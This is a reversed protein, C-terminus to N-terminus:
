SPKTRRRPGTDRKSSAIKPLESRLLQLYFRGNADFILIGKPNPGFAEVSVPTWTGVLDKASQAVADGAPIALGLCLLSVTLVTSFRNM